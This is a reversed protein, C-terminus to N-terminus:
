DLNNQRWQEVEEIMEETIETRPTSSKVDASLGLEKAVDNLELIVQKLRIADVSLLAPKEVVTSAANSRPLSEEITVTQTQADEIWAIGREDWDEELADEDRHEHLVYYYNLAAEALDRQIREAVQDNVVASNYRQVAAMAQERYFHILRYAPSVRTEDDSTSM